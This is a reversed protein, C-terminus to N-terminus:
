RQQPRYDSYTVMASINRGRFLSVDISMAHQTQKCREINRTDFFMGVEELVDLIRPGDPRTYQFTRSSYTVAEQNMSM